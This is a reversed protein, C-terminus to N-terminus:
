HSPVHSWEIHGWSGLHAPILYLSHPDHPLWTTGVERRPSAKAPSGARPSSRQAFVSCSCSDVAPSSGWVASGVSDTYVSHITQPTFYIEYVVKFTCVTKRMGVKQPLSSGGGWAGRGLTCSPAAHRVGGSRGGDVASARRRTAVDPPSPLEAKWSRPAPSTRVM